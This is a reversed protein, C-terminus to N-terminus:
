GYWLYIVTVHWTGSPYTRDCQCRLVHVCGHQVSALQPPAQPWHWNHVPPPPELKHPAPSVSVSPDTRSTRTRRCRLGARRLPFVSRVWPCGRWKFWDERIVEQKLLMHIHCNIKLVGKSRSPMIVDSHFRCKREGHAYISWNVQDSFASFYTNFM